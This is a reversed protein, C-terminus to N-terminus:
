NEENIFWILMRSEDEQGKHGTLSEGGRVHTDVTLGEARAALSQAQVQWGWRGTCRRYM